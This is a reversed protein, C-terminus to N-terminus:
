AWGMIALHNHSTGPESEGVSCIKLKCASCRGNKQKVTSIALQIASVEEPVGLRKAPSYPISMKFLAPGLDKYNEVATKSIITGQKEGFFVCTM